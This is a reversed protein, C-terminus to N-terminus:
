LVKFLKERFGPLRKAGITSSAITEAWRPYVRRVEEVTKCAFIAELLSLRTNPQFITNVTNMMFNRAMEVDKASRESPDPLMALDDPESPRTAPAPAPSASRSATSSSSTAARGLSHICGKEWLVTLVDPLSVNGALTALEAYSRKGDILILVRRELPSLGLKRAQMEETGVPTKGLITSTFDAPTM